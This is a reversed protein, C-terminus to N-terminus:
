AAKPLSVYFTSGKGIKSEVNIKGKNLEVLEKCIKLGLGTGSENQTGTTTFTDEAFLKNLNSADIGVGSDKFCIDYHDEREISKLVIIDGPNCFKIANALLNQAVISIMDKDAYIKLKQLDNILKIDKQDAKPKFFEFKNAILDHIDFIVPKPNLENMQSKSWNLLNNLMISTQHTRNALLPIIEQFEDTSISNEKLLKLTGDLGSIENKLDHSIISFLKNKVLNSENLEVILRKRERRSKIIFVSFIAVVVLVGLASFTLIKYKFLATQNKRERKEQEDIRRLQELEAKYRDEARELKKSSLDAMRKDSLKQYKKQWALAGSLNGRASDLKASYKYNKLVLQSAGLDTFEKRAKALLEEATKYRGLQMAVYGLQQKNDGSLMYYNAKNSFTLSTKYYNKAQQYDKESLATEAMINYTHGIYRDSKNKKNIALAEKLIEKAKNPKNNQLYIFGLNNMVLGVNKLVGIKKRIEISKRFFKESADLDDMESYVMGLNNYNIALGSSDNLKEYYMKSELLYDAGREINGREYELVFRGNYLKALGELSNAKRYFDEAKEYNSIAELYNKQGKLVLSKKFYVDGLGKLYNLRKGQEILNDLFIAAIIFEKDDIFKDVESLAEAFQTTDKITKSAIQDVIEAKNQATAIFVTIFLLFYLFFTKKM